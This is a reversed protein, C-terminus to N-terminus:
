RTFMPRGGTGKTPRSTCWERRSTSATSREGSGLRRPNATCGTQGRRGASEAQRVPLSLHPLTRRALQDLPLPRRIVASEFDIEPHMDIWADTTRPSFANHSEAKCMSSTSTSRPGARSEAGDGVAIGDRVWGFRPILVNPDNGLPLDGDKGGGASIWKVKGGGSPVVGIRVVPNPDGAKPYKEMDVTPHTPIWDTIPYM